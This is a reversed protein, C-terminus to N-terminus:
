MNIIYLIYSSWGICIYQWFITGMDEVVDDHVTGNQYGNATGNTASKTIVPSSQLNSSIKEDIVITPHSIMEVDNECVGNKVPEIGNAGNLMTNTANM